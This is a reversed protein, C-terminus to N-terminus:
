KRSNLDAIRRWQEMTLNSTDFWTDALAHGNPYPDSPDLVTQTFGYIWARGAIAPIVADYSGVTALGDIECTFTTGTISQHIFKEGVSLEGRAYMLALRASSGTGCPSRDGRGPSVVVTNKATLIGDNRELPGMFEINTIGPMEPNGPFSVQLQEAAAMKIKEGLDCLERAESPDIDVGFDESEVMAYTMGGYAVDIRRSGFGEIEIVADRHYVFAPQNVFRVSTVKGNSCECRVTILGAASELTLDTVPEQMPVIGRELLVTAVCMTNSGSMAPYETSELIVYGMAARPDNSPLIINANHWVAGRPEFLVFQRIEDRNRELWIKKDFMTEGPVEGVGDIIVRGIEGEAHADVIELNREWTM